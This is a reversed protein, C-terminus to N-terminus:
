SSISSRRRRYAFWCHGCLRCLHCNHCLRCQPWQASCAMVLIAALFANYQQPMEWHENINAGLHHVNTPYTSLVAYENEAAGWEKLLLADWDKVVVTHADLRASPPGPM